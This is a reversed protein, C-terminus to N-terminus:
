FHMSSPNETNEDMGSLKPIDICSHVELIAFFFMSTWQVLDLHKDLLIWEVILLEGVANVLLLLVM